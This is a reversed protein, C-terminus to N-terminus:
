QGEWEARKEEEEKTKMRRSKIERIEPNMENISHEAM